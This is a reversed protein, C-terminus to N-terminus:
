SLSQYITNLIRKLDNYDDESLNEWAKNRIQAVVPWWEGFKQIGKKTLHIIFSRRDNTCAKREVLDKKVLLDLIRTLTPHDKGTIEALQSQNQDNNQNLAKLILWQDVTIDFNQEKFCKQAYQKIKRNTRDLLYSYTSFKETTEM